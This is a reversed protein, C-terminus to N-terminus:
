EETVCILGEASLEGLFSLVDQTIEESTGSYDAAMRRCLEDVRCPTEIADWICRGIDDLGVYNNTVLNVIVLDSDVPTSQFQAKRVVFSQPGLKTSM